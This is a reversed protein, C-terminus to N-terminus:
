VDFSSHKAVPSILMSSLTYVQSEFMIIVGTLLVKTTVGLLLWTKLDFSSDAFNFSIKCCYKLLMTLALDFLLIPLYYQCDSKRFSAGIGWALLVNITLTISICSYSKLLDEIYDRTFISKFDSTRAVRDRPRLIM